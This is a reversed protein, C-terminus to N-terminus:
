SRINSGRQSQGAPFLQRSSAAAPPSEQRATRTQRIRSALRGQYLKWQWRQIFDDMRRERASSKCIDTRCCDTSLDTNLNRRNSGILRIATNCTRFRKPSSRMVKQPLSATDLRCM